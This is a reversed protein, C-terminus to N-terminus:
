REIVFRKSEEQYYYSFECNRNQLISEFIIRVSEPSRTTNKKILSYIKEACPVITDGFNTNFKRIYEEAKDKDCTSEITLRREVYFCSYYLLERCDEIQLLIKDKDEIFKSLGKMAYKQNDSCLKRFYKKIRSEVMPEFVPEQLVMAVQHLRQYAPVDTHPDAMIYPYGEKWILLHEIEHAVIRADELSRPFKKLIITGTIPSSNSEKKSNANITWNITLKDIDAKNELYFDNFASHKKCLNSLMVRGTSDSLKRLPTSKLTTKSGVHSKKM